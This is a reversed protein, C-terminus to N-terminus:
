KAVVLRGTVAENEQRLQVIYVGPVLADTRLTFTNEGANLARSEQVVLRGALDFVSLSAAQGSTSFCRLSVEDRAPNPRLTLGQDAASERTNMSGPAAVQITFGSSRGLMSADVEMCFSATCDEGDALEFSVFLCLEYPGDGEYQHFPYMDTSLAGDGFVWLVTVADAINPSPTVILVDEETESPAVEFSIECDAYECSGDDLTADPNFNLAEPDTCGAVEGPACFDALIEVETCFWQGTCTNSSYRFCAEYTGSETYEHALTTLNNNVATVGYTSGQILGDGFTYQLAAWYPISPWNEFSVSLTCAELTFTPPADPCGETCGELVEFTECIVQPESDGDTNAACIEYTGMSPVPFSLFSDSSGSEIFFGNTYPEGNVTWSVDGIDCPYTSVLVNVSDCKENFSMTLPCGSYVCSGDDLTADPNYNEANPDTCGYVAPPGIVLTDCYTSSCDSGYFTVCVEYEGENYQYGMSGDESVYPIDTEGMHFILMGEDLDGDFNAEIMAMGPNPVVDNTLTWSIDGCSESCAETVTVTECLECETLNPTACFTYDGPESILHTIVAGNPVDAPVGNVTWTVWNGVLFARMRIAGCSVADAELTFECEESFAAAPEAGDTEAPGEAGHASGATAVLVFAATAFVTYFKLLFERPNTAKKIMARPPQNAIKVGETCTPQVSAHNFGESKSCPLLRM